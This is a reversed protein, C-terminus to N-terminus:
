AAPSRALKPDNAITAFAERLNGIVNAIADLRSVDPARGIALIERLAFAYLARLNDAMQGGREVDTAVLLEMVGERAKGMAQVRQAVDRAEIATRARRLNALVHDYTIVVLKEPSATLVERERYVNAQSYSM